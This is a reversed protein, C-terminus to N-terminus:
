CLRIKIPPRALFHTIQEQNIKIGLGPESLNSLKGGYGFRIKKQCLDEKLLFTSYCIETFVVDPVMQLFHKGAAALIASEGVMAGLTIGRSYKIALEAMRLAGLLGGNKSIRINFDDVLDNEALYEADDLSILSEDAMLPLQSLDALAHMHSSDQVALPQELCCVGMPVMKESMAMATDVDWCGNADVRLTAKERNIDHELKDHLFDLNEEDAESGVKLKFDHLGFWRMLRFRKRLKHPESNDLVGSVRINNLNASRTFGSYGMWGAINSLNCKFYKGYADLLALEICCRAVNITQHQENEYPLNDAFDLLDPFTKPELNKLSQTLTDSINYLVSDVTEGTVYKRPLGEGFGITGDALLAAAVVTDTGCRQAAAHSFQSRFPLHLHYLQLEVLRNSM